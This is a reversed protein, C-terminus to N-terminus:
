LPTIHCLELELRQDINIIKTHYTGDYKNEVPAAYALQYGTHRNALDGLREHLRDVDDRTNLGMSYHWITDNGFLSQMAARHNASQQKHGLLRELTMHSFMGNKDPPLHAHSRSIDFLELTLMQDDVKLWICMIETAAGVRRQFNQSAPFRLYRTVEVAIGLNNNLHGVWYDIGHLILDIPEIIEFGIHNLRRNPTQSLIAAAVAPETGFFDECLLQELQVSKLEVLAHLIKEYDFCLTKRFTREDYIHKVALAPQYKQMLEAIVANIRAIEVM